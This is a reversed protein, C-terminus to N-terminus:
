QRSLRSMVGSSISSKFRASRVHPCCHYALNDLSSRLYFPELLWRARDSCHANVTGSVWLCVRAMAVNEAMARAFQETKRLATHTWCACCVARIKGRESETIVPGSGCEDHHAAVMM